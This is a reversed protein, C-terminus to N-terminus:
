LSFLFMTNGKPPHPPPTNQIQTILLYQSSLQTIFLSVTITNNRKNVDIGEWATHKCVSRIGGTYDSHVPLHHGKIRHSFQFAMSIKLSYEYGLYLSGMRQIM